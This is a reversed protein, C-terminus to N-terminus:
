RREDLLGSDVYYDGPYLPSTGAGAPVMRKWVARQMWQGSAVKEWKVPWIISEMEEEEWREPRHDFLGLKPRGDPVGENSDIFLWDVVVM